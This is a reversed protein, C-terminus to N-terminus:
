FIYRSKGFQCHGIPNEYWAAGSPPGDDFKVILSYNNNRDPMQSIFGAGPDLTEILM